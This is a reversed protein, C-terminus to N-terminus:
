CWGYLGHKAARRCLAPLRKAQGIAWTRRRMREDGAKGRQEIQRQRAPLGTLQEVQESHGRDHVAEPEHGALELGNGAPDLLCADAPAAVCFMAALEAGAREGLVAPAKAAVPRQEARRLCVLCPQ